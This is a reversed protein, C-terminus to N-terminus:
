KVELERLLQDKTIQKLCWNKTDDVHLNCPCNYCSKRWCIEQMYTQERILETVDMMIGIM